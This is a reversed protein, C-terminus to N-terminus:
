TEDFIGSGEAESKEVPGLSRITLETFSDAGFLGELYEKFAALSTNKVYAQVTGAFGGGHIRCVGDGHSKFFSEMAALALSVGQESPAKPSFINQLLDRSSKGSAAIQSLYDHFQDRQLAKVAQGVRENEDLFHLSRLVARDGCSKRLESFSSFIEEKKLGRCERKGFFAAVSHMEEPISAYDGTLDAHSGGTALIALRYGRDAFHYDITDIVPSSPDAFDVSIIGGCACALQDMLGCPKGFYKNESYQGALAMEVASVRNENYLFSFIKAILVELSASSSLGSGMAVNSRIYASFGGCRYGKQLFYYAIGRVLASSSEKEDERVDLNSLDISVKESFGETIIEVRMDSRPSVAALKDLNIAAALIKGHNHDTHNGCLETRGPSSFLFEAESNFHLRYAEDTKKM